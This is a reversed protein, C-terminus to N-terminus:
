MYMYPGVGERPSPPVVLRQAMYVNIYIYIHLTNTYIQIYGYTHIYTYQIRTQYAPEVPKGMEPLLFSPVASTEHVLTSPWRPRPNPPTVHTWVFFINYTYYTATHIYLIQTAYTCISLVKQVRQMDLFCKHFTLLERRCNTWEIM